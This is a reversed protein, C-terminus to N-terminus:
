PLPRAEALIKDRIYWHLSRESVVDVRRGLLAELAQQFAVWDTLSTGDRWTVVLDIDSGDRDEGRAASGFLRVNGAGHREALTAIEARHRRLLEETDAHRGM